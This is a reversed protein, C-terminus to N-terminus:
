KNVLGRAIANPLYNIEDAIHHVIGRGGLDVGYKNNLARSVTSYSINAKAAIDKITARM